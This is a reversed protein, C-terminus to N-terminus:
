LIKKYYNYLFQAQTVGKNFPVFLVDMKIEEPYLRYKKLTKEGCSRNGLGTQKYDINILLSENKKLDKLHSAEDIANIDYYYSSINITNDAIIMLGNEDKTTFSAFRVDMKNGNEQPYEYKEFMDFIDNEYIGLKNYEKKDEYSEYPGLGYWLMDCQSMPTKFNYGIRPIYSTDKLPIFHTKISLEGSNYLTYIFKVKYIPKITKGSYILSTEISAFDNTINYNFSVVRSSLDNLKEKLWEKKQEKKDNDTAARYFNGAFGKEILSVGKNNWSSIEGYLKDYTLLFDDGEFLVYRSNDDDVEIISNINNIPVITKRIKEFLLQSSCVVFGKKAYLNTNKLSFYLNICYENENDLSFPIAYKKKNGPKINLNTIIKEDVLLGNKILEINCNLYDLSIFANTNKIYFSDTDNRIVIVPEQIKKLQLLSTHPTRDPHNLGDMCFNGTNQKHGFDGGYGYYPTNNEDQTLVAHDVWEWICGGMLKPYKYFAEWYEKLNGPANGMSHGYECMFYPRKDSKDKAEKIIDSVDTYMVSIVDVIKNKHAQEFHIPLNYEHKKIEEKMAIHNDGFRTENGLSWMIISAHNRDRLVMRKVRDIFHPKWIIKDSVDYDPDSYHFGHTEIDAEDIVYLGYKDCLQLFYKDPPYHATRVANINHKKMSIVDDFMSQKSIAHGLTPHTDHHNVGKIKIAIGNLLFIEDKIEVRKFGTKHSRIDITNGKEDALKIISTYLYPTEATWKNPSEYTITKIGSEPLTQNIIIKNNDDYLLYTAITNNSGYNCEVNIIGNKYDDSLTAEIFFDNISNNNKSYIYVERNIGSHRFFDQDELYSAVNWKYVEVSILNLGIEIYKSIDFESPMHSCQSYGVEIGNIYVTFASNVGGFHLITNRKEFNKPVSFETRYVGIPNIDPIHPPDLPYPYETNIYNPNEYGFMQWSSPVPISDWSSSNYEIDFHGEPIEYKNNAYYFDWIGNLSKYYMSESNIANLAAKLDNFPVSMGHPNIRNIGVINIDRYKEM